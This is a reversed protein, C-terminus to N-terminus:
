TGAGGPFFCVPGLHWQADIFVVPKGYPTAIDEEVVDDPLTQWAETDSLRFQWHGDPTRQAKVGDPADAHDCCYRYWGNNTRLRWEQTTTRRAYWDRVAQPESAYEPKWRAEAASLTAIALVAVIIAVKAKM